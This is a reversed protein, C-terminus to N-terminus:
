LWERRTKVQRMLVAQELPNDIGRGVLPAAGPGAVFERNAIVIVFPAHRNVIIVAKELEENEFPGLGAETPVRNEFLPISIPSREGHEIGGLHSSKVLLRDCLQQRIRSDYAVPQLDFGSERVRTRKQRDLFFEATEVLIDPSKHTALRLLIRPVRM